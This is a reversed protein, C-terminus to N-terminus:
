KIILKHSVPTTYNVCWVRTDEGLVKVSPSPVDIRDLNHSDAVQLDVAQAIANYHVYAQHALVFIREYVMDVHLQRLRAPIQRAVALYPEQFDGEAPPVLAPHGYADYISSIWVSLVISFKSFPQQLFM